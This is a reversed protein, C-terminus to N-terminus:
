CPPSRLTPSLTNRMAAPETAAKLSRGTVLDKGFQLLVGAPIYVGLRVRILM